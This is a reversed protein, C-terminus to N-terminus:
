YRHRLHYPFDVVAVRGHPRTPPPLPPPQLPSVAPLAIPLGTVSRHEPNSTRLALSKSDLEINCRTTILQLLNRTNSSRRPARPVSLEHVRSSYRDKYYSCEAFLQRM